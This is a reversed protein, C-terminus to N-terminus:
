YILYFVVVRTKLLAIFATKNEEMMFRGIAITRRMTRRLDSAARDLAICRTAACHLVSNKM